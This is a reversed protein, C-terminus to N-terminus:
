GNRLALAASLAKRRARSKVSKYSPCIKWVSLNEIRSHASELWNLCVPKKPWISSANLM